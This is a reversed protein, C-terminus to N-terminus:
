NLGFSRKAWGALRTLFPAGDPYYVGPGKIKPVNIGAATLHKIDRKLKRWQSKTRVSDVGPVQRHHDAWRNILANDIEFILHGHRSNRLLDAMPLSRGDEHERRVHWALMDAAQLQTFQKDDKFQPRGDIWKRVSRPVVENMSSFLMDIDDSVGDQQDFIFEIKGKAGATSAFNALTAIVASCVPFYPNALGRPSVPELVRYFHRRDISVQFSMPNFHKIVRALGRLKEDRKEETWGNRWDFQGRLHQAEAMKLYHISPLAKLEEDWADAFLASLEARNLYGAM